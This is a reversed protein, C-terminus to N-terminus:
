RWGNRDANAAALCDVYLDIFGQRNTPRNDKVHFLIKEMLDLAVREKSGSDNEIRVTQDAM